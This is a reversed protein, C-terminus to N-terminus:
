NQHYILKALQRKEKKLEFLIKMCTKITNEGEAVERDEGDGYVVFKISNRQRETGRSAGGEIEIEKM